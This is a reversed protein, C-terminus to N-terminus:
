DGLTDDFFDESDDLLSLLLTIEEANIQTTNVAVQNIDSKVYASDLIKFM